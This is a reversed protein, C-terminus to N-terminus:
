PRDEQPPALRQGPQILDPEAGIVRRNAAYWRRTARAIAAADARPGLHEAAIAWLTDGPLVVVTDTTLARVAPAATVVPRDPLRLGDLARDTSDAHAPLVTFTMTVGAFVAGRLLRPTLLVAAGRLAPVSALVAVVLVWGALALLLVSLLGVVADPFEDGRIAALSSGARRGTAGVTVAAVVALVIATRRPRM